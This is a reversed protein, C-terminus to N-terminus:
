RSAVESTARSAVSSVVYLGGAFLLGMGVFSMNKNWEAEEAIAQRFIDAAKSGSLTEGIPTSSISSKIEFRTPLTLSETEAYRIRTSFASEGSVLETIEQEPEWANRTRRVEIRGQSILDKLYEEPRKGSIKYTYRGPNRRARRRRPRRM